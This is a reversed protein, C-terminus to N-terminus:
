RRALLEHVLEEAKSIDPSDGVGIILFIAPKFLGFSTDLVFFDAVEQLTEHEHWTTMVLKDEPPDFDPSSSIFSYDVADDWKSCEHGSCVAYRCGTRVLEAAIEERETETQTTDSSLIWAAFEQGQVPSQFTYPRTLTIAFAEPM